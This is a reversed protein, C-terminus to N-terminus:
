NTLPFVFRYVCCTSFVITQFSPKRWFFTKYTKPIHVFHSTNLICFLIYQAFPSHKFSLYIRVHPSSEISFHSRCGHCNRASDLMADLHQIRGQGNRSGNSLLPPPLMIPWIVPERRGPNHAAERQQQKKGMHCCTTHNNEVKWRIDLPRTQPNLNCKNRYQQPQHILFPGICPWQLKITEKPM